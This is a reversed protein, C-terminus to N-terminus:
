YVYKTKQNLSTNCQHATVYMSIFAYLDYCVTVTHNVHRLFGWLLNLTIPLTIAATTTNHRQKYTYMNMKPANAYNHFGVILKTM